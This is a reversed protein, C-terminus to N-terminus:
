LVHLITHYGAIYVFLYLFCCFVFPVHELIRSAHERQPRRLAAHVRVPWGLSFLLLFRFICLTCAGFDWPAAPLANPV